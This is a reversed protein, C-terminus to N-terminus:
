FDDLNILKVPEEIAQSKTALKDPMEDEANDSLEPDKLQEYDSRKALTEDRKPIKVGSRIKPGPRPGLDIDKRSSRVAELLDLQSCLSLLFLYSLLPFYVKNQSSSNDAKRPGTKISPDFGISRIIGASYSSQRKKETGSADPEKGSERATMVVKMGEKDRELLAKLARDAADQGGGMKRKAKAQGDRGITETLYTTRPDSSTGSVVHGSVVYTAGDGISGDEPKLGWQRQPDYATKRKSTSSSTSSMGSTRVFDMKQKIFYFLNLLFLSYGISFEPRAARRRQVANQVHYDCIESVRKDYWSGCVKGDQKRVTCMGLDRSSGIVM